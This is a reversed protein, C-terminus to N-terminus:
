LKELEYWDFHSIRSSEREDMMNLVEPDINLSAKYENTLREIEDWRKKHKEGNRKEIESALKKIREREDRMEVTIESQPIGARWKPYSPVPETEDVPVSPIIVRDRYEWIKSRFSEALKLVDDLHKVMDIAWEKTEVWGWSWSEVDYDSSIARIVFISKM